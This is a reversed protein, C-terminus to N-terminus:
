IKNGIILFTAFESDNEFLKGAWETEQNSLPVAPSASDEDTRVTAAAASWFNIGIKRSKEMHNKEWFAELIFAAGLIKLVDTKMARTLSSSLLIADICAPTCNNYLDRYILFGVTNFPSSKECLIAAFLPPIDAYDLGKWIFQGLQHRSAKLGDVLYRVMSLHNGKIAVM